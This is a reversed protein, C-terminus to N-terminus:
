FVQNKPDTYFQDLTFLKQCAICDKLFVDFQCVDMSKKSFIKKLKEMKEFNFINENVNLLSLINFYPSYQFHLIYDLHTIWEYRENNSFMFFLLPERGDDSVTCHASNGDDEVLARLQFGFMNEINMDLTEISDLPLYMSSDNKKSSLSSRKHTSNMIREICSYKINIPVLNNFQPVNIRKYGNANDYMRYNDFLCINTDNLVGWKMIYLSQKNDTNSENSCVSSKRSYELSSQYHISNSYRRPCSENRIQIVWGEYIIHPLQIIDYKTESLDRFVLKINQAWLLQHEKEQLFYSKNCSYMKNKCHLTIGYKYIKSSSEFESIYKYESLHIISYLCINSDENKFDCNKYFEKIDTDPKLESYFYLHCDKLAVWFKKNNKSAIMHGHYKM